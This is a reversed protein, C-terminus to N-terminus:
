GSQELEMAERCEAEVKQVGAAFDFCAREYEPDSRSDGGGMLSVRMDMAHTLVNLAHSLPKSYWHEAALGTAAVMQAVTDSVDFTTAIEREARLEDGPTSEDMIRVLASELEEMNCAINRAYENVAVKARGAEYLDNFGGATAPDCALALAFTKQTDGSLSKTAWDFWLGGEISLPLLRPGRTGARVGVGELYHQTRHPPNQVRRGLEILLAIHDLTLDLGEAKLEEIAEAANTPCELM